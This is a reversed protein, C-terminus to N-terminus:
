CYDADFGLFQFAQVLLHYGYESFTHYVAGDLDKDEVWVSDNDVVVRYKEGADKVLKEMMSKDEENV